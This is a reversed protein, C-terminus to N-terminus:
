LHIWAFKHSSYPISFIWTLKSNSLTVLTFLHQTKLLGSAPDVQPKMIEVRVDCSTYALPIWYSMQVCPNVHINNVTHKRVVLPEVTKWVPGKFLYCWVIGGTISLNHCLQIWERGQNRTRYTTVGTVNEAWTKVSRSNMGFVENNDDHFAHKKM